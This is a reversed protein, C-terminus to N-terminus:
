LDRARAGRWAAQGEGDEPLIYVVGRGTGLLPQVVADYFAEPVVVCGATVRRDDPRPSALRQVRARKSPGPRVRHIALANRYDLWVIAEGSLNIGPESVFRGAPTTRDSDLLLGAETREGTGPATHDGRARGLLVASHGALGGDARYVWVVAARKDVIAFPLGRADRGAWARAAVAQAATGSRDAARATTVALGVAVALGFAACSPIWRLAPTRRM